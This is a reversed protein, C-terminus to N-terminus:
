AGMGEYRKLGKYYSFSYLLYFIIMWVSSILIYKYLDQLSILGQIARSYNYGVLAFPTKEVIAYISKPMLNLPFYLGGTLLYLSNVLPKIPWMQILWFGLNSLLAIFLFFMTFNVIFFVFVFLTYIKSPHFSNIFLFMFLYTVFIFFRQGIYSVFFEGLLSIPKLILSTLKGTRVLSGLRTVMETSFLLASFNTLLIYVIMQKKSYNGILSNETSNYIAIWTFISVSMGILHTIIGTLFNFKYIMNSKMYSILIILYKKM